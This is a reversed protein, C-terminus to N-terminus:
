GNQKDEMYNFYNRLLITWIYVDIVLITFTASNAFTIMASMNRIELSILQSLYHIAFTITTSYMYKIDKKKDIFCLLTPLGIMLIMNIGLYYAPLFREVVLLIIIMLSILSMDIFSLKRKRCCASCYFYGVAFSVVFSFLYYAWEHTDVFNGFRVIPEIEALSIVFEPFILKALYLVILIAGFIILGMTWLNNFKKIKM